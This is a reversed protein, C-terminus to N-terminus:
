SCGEEVVPRLWSTQTGNQKETKKLLRPDTMASTASVQRKGRTDGSECIRAVIDAPSNTQGLILTKTNRGSQALREELWPRRPGPFVLGIFGILPGVPRGTVFNRHVVIHFDTQIKHTSCNAWQASLLNNNPDTVLASVVRAPHIAPGNPGSSTPKGCFTAAM